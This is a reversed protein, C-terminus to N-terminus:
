LAHRALFLENKIIKRLLPVTDNTTLLLSIGAIETSQKCGALYLPTKDPAQTPCAFARGSTFALTDDGDAAPSVRCLLVRVGLEGPVNQM